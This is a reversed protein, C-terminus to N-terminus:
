HPSPPLGQQNKLAEDLNGKEHPVVEYTGDGLRTVSALFDNRLTDILLRKVKHFTKADNLHEAMLEVNEPNASKGLAYVAAYQVPAREDNRMRDAFDRGYKRPNIATLAHIASIRNYYYSDDMFKAIKGELASIKKHGSLIRLAAVQYEPDALLKGVALNSAQSDFNSLGLLAQRVVNADPNNLEDILLKEIERDGKIHSMVRLCYNRLYKNNKDNKYINMLYPKMQAGLQVAALGVVTYSDKRMQYVSTTMSVESNNEIFDALMRPHKSGVKKVAAELFSWGKQLSAMTNFYNFLKVLIDKKNGRSAINALSVIAAKKAAPPPAPHTVVDFLRETILDDDCMGMATILVEQPATDPEKSLRTLFAEIRRPDDIKSLQFISQIKVRADTDTMNKILVPVAKKGLSALRDFYQTPRPEKLIFALKGRLMLGEPSKPHKKLYDDAMAKADEFKNTLFLYNMEKITEPNEKTFIFACSTLCLALLVLILGLSESRKATDGPYMKM